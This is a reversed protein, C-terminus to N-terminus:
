ALQGKAKEFRVDSLMAVFREKIYKGLARDIRKIYKKTGALNTPMEM